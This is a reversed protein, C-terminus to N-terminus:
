RAGAAHHATFQSERAVPSFKLTFYKAIALDECDGGNSTLTEMPTAWYDHQRWHVIDEVFPIQRNFFDNVVELQRMETLGRASGLMQQWAM